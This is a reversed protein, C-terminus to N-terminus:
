TILNADRMMVHMPAVHMPAVCPHWTGRMPAVHAGPSAQPLPFLHRSDSIVTEFPGQPYSDRGPLTPRWGSALRAGRPYGFLHLTSLSIAPQTFLESIVKQPRRGQVHLPFAVDRTALFRPSGM